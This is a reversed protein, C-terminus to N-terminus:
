DGMELLLQEAVLPNVQGSELYRIVRKSDEEEWGELTDRLLDISPGGEGDYVLDLLVITTDFDEYGLEYLADNTAEAKNESDAVSSIWQASTVLDQRVYLRAAESIFADQKDSDLIQARAEDVASANSNLITQKALSRMGVESIESENQLAWTLAGSLDQESWQEIVSNMIAIDVSEDGEFEFKSLASEPDVSVVHEAIAMVLENKLDPQLTMSALTAAMPIDDHKKLIVIMAAESLQNQLARDVFNGEKDMWASEVWDWASLPDTESWGSILSEALEERIYPDQSYLLTLALGPEKRAIEQLAIGAVEISPSIAEEDSLVGELFDGIAGPELKRLKERLLYNRKAKDSESLFEGLDSFEFVGEEREIDERSLREEQKKKSVRAAIEEKSVFYQKNSGGFDRSFRAFLYVSAFVVVIVTLIKLLNFM